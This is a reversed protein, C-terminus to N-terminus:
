ASVRSIVWAKLYEPINSTPGELHISAVNLGYHQNFTDSIAQWEPVLRYKGGQKNTAVFHARSSAESRLLNTSINQCNNWVTAKGSNGVYGCKWRGKIFHDRPNNYQITLSDSAQHLIAAAKNWLTYDTLPDGNTTDWPFISCSGSEGAATYDRNGHNREYPALNFSAYDCPKAIISADPGVHGLSCAYISGAYRKNLILDRRMRGGSVYLIRSLEGNAIYDINSVPGTLTYNIM